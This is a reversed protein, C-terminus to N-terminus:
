MASLRRYFTTRAMGSRELANALGIRGAGYLAAVDAFGDPDALMPRGFKVGRAHAAKIGEAQRARINERESQAFFALLQLVIEGILKGILDDGRGRTDLLPTDIVFINAGIDVTIKKWEAIIADYNRGLRDLGTVVVLDGRSLISTMDNYRDRNFDKGSKKDCFIEDFPIGCNRFAAIQRDLNQDKTSVRAYAYNKM